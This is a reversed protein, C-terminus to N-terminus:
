AISAPATDRSTSPPRATKERYATIVVDSIKSRADAAMFADDLLQTNRAEQERTVPPLLKRPTTMKGQAHWENFRVNYQHTMYDAYLDADDGWPKLRDCIPSRSTELAENSLVACHSARYTRAAHPPPGRCAPSTHPTADIPPNLAPIFILNHARRRSPRAGADIPPNLAPIFILNHARRGAPRAGADIPPHDSRHPSLHAGKGLDAYAQVKKTIPDLYPM